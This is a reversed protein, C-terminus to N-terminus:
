TQAMVLMTNEPERCQVLMFGIVLDRVCVLTKMVWYMCRYMYWPWAYVVVMCTGDVHMYWPWAYVMAM